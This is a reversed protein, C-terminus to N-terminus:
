TCNYWSFFMRKHLFKKQKESCGHHQAAKAGVMAQPM